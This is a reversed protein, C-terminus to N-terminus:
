LVIAWILASLAAWPITTLALDIDRPQSAADPVFPGTQAQRWARISQTGRVARLAWVLSLGLLPLASVSLATALLRLGLTHDVSAALAICPLGIATGLAAGAFTLFQCLAVAMSERVDPDPSPGWGRDIVAAATQKASGGESRHFARYFTTLLASMIALTM